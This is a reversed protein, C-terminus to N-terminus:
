IAPFVTSVSGTVVCTRTVTEVRPTPTQWYLGFYKNTNGIRVALQVLIAMIFPSAQHPQLQPASRCFTWIWVQLMPFSRLSKYPISGALSNRSGLPVIFLIFSLYFLRPRTSSFSSGLCIAGVAQRTDTWWATTTPRPVRTPFRCASTSIILNM